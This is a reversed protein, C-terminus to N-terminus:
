PYNKLILPLYIEHWSEPATASAVNGANDIVQVLYEISATTPISGGWMGSESDWALDTSHWRGDNTTYAIVVKYIGSTDTCGVTIETASANVVSSVSTITPAAWDNSSTHYYIDFGLEDYVRETQSQANFQGLLTVLKDGRELHNLKHLLAPYWGPASFTPEPLTAIEAIARDIVPDFPMVDTYLGGKFVVGHAKTEPFSVDAIYKPQIPEGNGSHVLGGFTYYDGNSTSEATLAPFQWNVSNVTLGNGLVTVQQRKIPTAGLQQANTQTLMPAETPTTYRYMPLGYLTSEIMVKEDYYDFDRENLYYEQKAAALAQGLNASQGYVLRETFDLMLQESLGVSDTLGWGYGTNAIYNAQHQILAQTTDLPEYPNTPPVNLGSHCGVTYFIVRTHDATAGAVDSSYVYGSPTGIIYHNAHGNISVVDHRINLVDSRFRSTNWSEGVLTCDSTIGDDMLESCMAQAGDEIFDYGTAAANTVTVGDNTLFADIQAIIEDPTEILRGTGLDPIYLDHGDWDPSDPVTPHADAYYDDTLNMEAKLASGVTSDGSVYAYDQERGQWGFWWWDFYYAQNLVRRFPIVRDDGVIVLYELGPHSSWQTDILAKISEAVANAKATSTPDADWASYAAAVIADNEVQVVLGNVNDHAALANLKDMVQTAESAGYLVELKQRNVLILTRVDQQGSQVTLTRTVEQSWEGEDDKVKFYITHTGASLESAPVTFDEQISLPGDIDSRWEYATIYAGDEDTDTGSGNFYITDQGQIAPDPYSLYWIFSISAIPPSSGGPTKTPTPTATATSTPIATSTSTPIPTISGTPTATPTATPLGTPTATPTPTTTPTDTATPTPQAASYYAYKLNGNHDDYYGIHPYGSEDLALSTFSGVDGESDVIEIHWGSADQYAYKLDGNYGDHYSIHPYESEDLALSTFSGVNGGSDVTNVQWGSADQYAYKLVGNGYYSIHPYRSADLALSTYEGVRTATDVYEVQWGATNKYAYKLVDYDQDYYSIHPHGDRDLALSTYAGVLGRFGHDVTEIHWGFDDQYAYKLGGRGQDNDYYSIHPCGDKDLALSTHTGQVGHGV